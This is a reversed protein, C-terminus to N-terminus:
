NGRFKIAGAVNIGPEEEFVKLGEINLKVDLLGDYNSDTVEVTGTSTDLIEYFDGRVKILVDAVRQPSGAEDLIDRGLTYSGIPAKVSESSLWKLTVEASANFADDPDGVTLRISELTIDDNYMQSGTMTMSPDVLSEVEKEHVGTIVVKGMGEEVDELSVSATTEENLDLNYDSEENGIVLQSASLGNGTMEVYHWAKNQSDYFLQDFLVSLRQDAVLKIDDTPILQMKDIETNYAYLKDDQSFLITSGDDAFRIRDNIKKIKMPLKEQTGTKLDARHVEYGSINPNKHQTFYYLVDQAPIPSAIIYDVIGTSSMDGSAMDYAYIPYELESSSKQIPFYLKKGDTSFNIMPMGMRGFMMAATGMFTNQQQVDESVVLPTEKGDKNVVLQAQDTFKVSNGNRYALVLEDESLDQLKVEGKQDRNYRVLEIIKGDSTAAAKLFVPDSQDFGVFKIIPPKQQAQANNYSLVGILFIIAIRM